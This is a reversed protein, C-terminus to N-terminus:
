LYECGLSELESATLEVRDTQAPLYVAMVSTMSDSHKLGLVHGLEHLILAELNVADRRDSALPGSYFTFDRANVRVDADKIRDGVWSITTRGQESARGAEWDSLFSLVSLGDGRVLPLPGSSFELRFIEKKANRNWTQTAAQVATRYAVPVSPDVLLRIPLQGKWSIREGYVNQVFGCSSQVSSGETGPSCGAVLLSLLLIWFVGGSRSSLWRRVLFSAEVRKM